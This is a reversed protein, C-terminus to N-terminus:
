QVVEVVFGLSLQPTHAGRTGLPPAQADDSCHPLPEVHVLLFHATVIETAAPAAHWSLAVEAVKPEQTLPYRQPSSPVHTARDFIPSAQLFKVSHTPRASQTSWFHVAVPPSPADQVVIQADPNTHPVLLFHTFGTETASPASHSSTRVHSVPSQWPPPVEPPLSPVTVCVGPLHTANRAFPAAHPPSPDFSEHSGNELQKAPM